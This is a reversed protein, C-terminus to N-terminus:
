MYMREIVFCSIYAAERYHEPVPSVFLSHRESRQADDVVSIARPIYLQSACDMGREMKRYQSAQTAGGRGGGVIGSGQWCYVEAHCSALCPHLEPQAGIGLAQTDQSPGCVWDEPENAVIEELVDSRKNSLRESGTRADRGTPAIDSPDKRYLAYCTCRAKRICNLDCKCHWRKVRRRQHWSADNSYRRTTHM